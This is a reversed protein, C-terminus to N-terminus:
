AKKQAVMEKLTISDVDRQSLIMQERPIPWAINLEPDFLSLARDGSVDREDYFADVAYHYVVPGEIACISNAVGMPVYLSTGLDKTADPEFMFYEVQSFTPSLRVFLINKRFPKM